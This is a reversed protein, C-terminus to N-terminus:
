QMKLKDNENVENEENSLNKKETNMLMMPRRQRQGMTTTTTIDHTNITAPQHLTFAKSYIFQFSVLELWFVLLLAVIFCHFTDVVVFIYMKERQASM